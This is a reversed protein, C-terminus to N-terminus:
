PQTSQYPKDYQFASPKLPRMQRIYFGREDKRTAAQLTVTCAGPADAHRPFHLETLRKSSRDLFAVSLLRVTDGPLSPQFHGVYTADDLKRAGIAMMVSDLVAQPHTPAPQISRDPNGQLDAQVLRADAFRTAQMIGQEIHRMAQPQAFAMLALLCLPLLYVAKLAVWRCSPKRCMMQFRRKIPSQNLANVVPQLRAGTAKQILLLQYENEDIGSQLVSRDAQYEHVDRLDQRLMWVFPLFWLMRCALECLLMDWSHRLRIHALEHKLIPQNHVDSPPLLMWHMWSCPTKVAPHTLIRVNAPMGDIRIRRGQRILLLLAALSWLYRLWTALTGIIYILHLAIIADTTASHAATAPQLDASHQQRIVLEGTSVASIERELRQRSLTIVNGDATQMQCLPLVMSAALILLLVVRNFRHLTERRLFLGFLSYLMTLVMAWRLIYILLTAM